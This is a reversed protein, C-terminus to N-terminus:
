FNCISQVKNNRLRLARKVSNRYESSMCFWIFCHLSANVTLIANSFHGLFVSLQRFVPLQRNGLKFVYMFGSDSYIVQLLASIGAPLSSISYTVTMFIVLSTTKETSKRVLDSTTSDLEKTNHLEIILLVAIIPLLICPLIAPVFLNLFIVAKLLYEHLFDFFNSLQLGYITYTGTLGCEENPIWTGSKVIETRLYNFISFICSGLFCLCTAHFGFSVNSVIEIKPRTVFKLALYKIFALLVGLWTSCQVVDARFCELVWFVRIVLDSAPIISSIPLQPVKLVLPAFWTDRKFNLIINKISMAVIMSLADCIEIGIMVSIVSSMMMSKRTLIFVHFLTLCLGIIAIYFEVSVCVLSYKELFCYLQYIFELSKFSPFLKVADEVSSLRPM